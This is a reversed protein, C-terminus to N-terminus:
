DESVYLGLHRLASHATTLQVAVLDIGGTAANLASAAETRTSAPDRGRDDFYWGPGQSVSREIFGFLQPLRHM